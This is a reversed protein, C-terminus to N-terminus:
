RQMSGIIGDLTGALQSLERVACFSQEMATSTEGSIRNIEEAGRSIQEVAASQQEAATAIARVQDSTGTAMDVIERLCDGSERALVSNSAVLEAAQGTLEVAERTEDQIASVALGVEHTAQMTKEALKRVEDAVVAFGRGADGARAAEIAANLALLNTQDAIDTIVGLVSGVGRARDGLSSMDAKLAMIREQLRSVAEEVQGVKLAGERAKERSLDASQASMSANKAVELISANIEEIASATETSRMHQAEAGKSSQEVQASLEESASAVRAAVDAASEAASAIRENQASIDRQQEMIVSLDTIMAFSGTLTGDLDFLPAADIRVQLTRGQSTRLERELNLLPRKQRLVLSTVTQKGPDGYLFAGAAQGRFKSGDGQRGALAVMQNNVFVIRGQLDCVVTALPMNDLLGQAFGLREKLAGTMEQINHALGEFEYSYKGKLQTRYDGAGLDRAYELLGSVPKQILRRLAVVIAAVVLLGCLAGGAMLMNRQSIATAALDSEYASMGTLWGTREFTKFTMYKKDDGWGYELSGNKRALADRVFPQDAVNKFCMAPDAHAIITGQGDIIFGYGSQGIRVPAIYRETLVTWNPFLGVGGVVRGSDDRVAHAVAAVPLGGGSKARLLSKGLFTEHGALIDRVYDRASRDGGTLDDGRANGGALIRGQADFVFLAWYNDNQELIGALMRQVQAQGDGRAALGRVGPALAVTRAVVQANSVFGEVGAMAANVANGMAKSQDAFTSTYSTRSVVVVGATMAVAIIVAVCLTIVPTMSKMKM